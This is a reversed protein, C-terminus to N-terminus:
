IIECIGQVIAKYGTETSSRVVVSQKKSRWNVLNGWLKTCYGTTSATKWQDQGIQMPMANLKETTVNESYYVRPTGKLYRLIHNVADLHRQTPAHMVQSVVGANFAINSRILSLCILKGVLRQDVLHDIEISRSKCNRELPASV